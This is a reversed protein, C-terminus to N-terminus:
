CIRPLQGGALKGLLRSGGLGTRLVVRGPRQETVQGIRAAGQGGPLARLAALAEKEQAGDVVAVLRGECACYLPDLGLLGCAARVGPTVPVEEEAIEITLATGEVFENLTTALGGRTPDRMIRLGGPGAAEILARSLEHLPMCDSALEGECPLEGRAMMVAAGHCGVPGSVLVADGPRIAARGLGPARLFGIGSTNIYVQDGKGREVVKTDGTVIRVGCRAATEAASAVIERLAEM